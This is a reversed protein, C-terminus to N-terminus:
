NSHFHCGFASLEKTPLFEASSRRHIHFQVINIVVVACLFFIKYFKLTILKRYTPQLIEVLFKRGTSAKYLLFFYSNPIPLCCFSSQSKLLCSKPFNPFPIWTSLDVVSTNTCNKTNNNTIPQNSHKWLRTLSVRPHIPNPMLRVFLSKKVRKAARSKPKLWALKQLSILYRKTIDGKGM